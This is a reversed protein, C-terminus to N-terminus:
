ARGRYPRCQRHMDSVEYVSVEDGDEKAEQALRDAHAKALNREDSGYACIERAGDEGPEDSGKLIRYRM